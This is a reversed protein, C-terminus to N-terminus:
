EGLAVGAKKLASQLQRVDLDKAGVAAKVSLAAATGAAQGTLVCPPIVRIHGHAEHEVSICRGGVFLNKLQKSYISRYPIEFFKEGGARGIADEFRRGAKIDDMMLSYDGTLRRSVRTGVQSATELLVVEEYGPVERRHFEIAKLLIRRSEVEIYTLDDPSTASLDGKYTGEEYGPQPPTAHCLFINPLRPDLSIRSRLTQQVPAEKIKAEYEQANEKLYRDAKEVDIGAYKAMLSIRKTSMEFPAGAFEAVDADGTADVVAKCLIAERGAKSELTLAQLKNDKLNAGVVWTHLRLKVGAEECMDLSLCKLTEPNYRFSGNSWVIDGRRELAEVLELMIGGYVPSDKSHTKRGGPVMAVLGGTAMGGLHGYRELLMTKAGLRASAVAAPVGATGGGVVAVDVEAIVPIDRAPEHVTKM